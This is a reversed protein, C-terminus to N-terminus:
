HRSNCKIAKAEQRLQDKITVCDEKNEGTVKLVRKSSHQLKEYINMEVNSEELLNTVNELKNIVEKYEDQSPKPDEEKSLERTDIYSECNERKFEKKSKEDMVEKDLNGFNSIKKEIKQAEAESSITKKFLKNKLNKFM